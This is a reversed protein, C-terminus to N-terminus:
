ENTREKGYLAKVDEERKEKLTQAIVQCDNVEHGARIAIITAVVAVIFAGGAWWWQETVTTVFILVCGCWAILTFWGATSEAERIKPSTLKAM